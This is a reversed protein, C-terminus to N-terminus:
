IEGALWADRGATTKQMAELYAWAKEGATEHNQEVRTLVHISAVPMKEMGAGTPNKAIEASTVGSLIAHACVDPLDYAAGLAFVERPLRHALLALQPRLRRAIVDSPFLYHRAFALAHRAARLDEGPDPSLAALKSAAPTSLLPLATGLALSSGAMPHSLAYTKIYPNSLISDFYVSAEKLVDKPVPFKEGTYSILTLYPLPTVPFRDPASAVDNQTARRSPLSLAANSQVRAGKGGRRERGRARKSRLVIFHDGLFVSGSPRTSRSMGEEIKVRM